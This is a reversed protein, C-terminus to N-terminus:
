CTKRTVDYIMVSSRMTIHYTIPSLGLSVMFIYEIPANVVRFVVHKVNRKWIWAVASENSTFYHTM